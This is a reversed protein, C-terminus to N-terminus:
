EQHITLSLYEKCKVKHRSWGSISLQSNCGPCIYAMLKGSEDKLRQPEPLALQAKGSQLAPTNGEIKAIRIALPQADVNRPQQLGSAVNRPRSQAEGGKGFGGITYLTAIAPLAFPAIVIRANIIGQLREIWEQAIGGVPQLEQAHAWAYLLQFYTSFIAVAAFTIVYWNVPLRLRWFGVSQSGSGGNRIKTAVMVMTFDVAIAFALGQIWWVTAGAESLPQVGQMTTAAGWATHQATAIAIMYYVAKFRDIHFLEGLGLNRLSRM